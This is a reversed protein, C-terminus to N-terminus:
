KKMMVKENNGNYSEGTGNPWTVRATYQQLVKYMDTLDFPNYKSYYKLGKQRYRYEKDLDDKVESAWKIILKFHLKNDKVLLNYFSSMEKSEILDWYERNYLQWTSFLSNILTSCTTTSKTNCNNKNSPSKITKNINIITKKIVTGKYTYDWMPSYPKIIKNNKEFENAKKLINFFYMIEELLTRKSKINLNFIEENLSHSYANIKSNLCNKYNIDKKKDDCVNFCNKNAAKYFNSNYIFVVNPITTNKYNGNIWNDYNDYNKPISKDKEYKDIINSVYKYINKPSIIGYYFIQKIIKESIIHPKFNFNNLDRTSLPNVTITNPKVVPINYFCDIDRLINPIISDINIENMYINDVWVSTIDSNNEELKGSYMSLTPHYVNSLGFVADATNKNLFKFDINGDTCLGFLDIEEKNKKLTFNNNCNTLTKDSICNKNKVVNHLVIDILDYLIEKIIIDDNYNGGYKYIPITCHSKGDICISPVIQTPGIIQKSPNTMYLNIITYSERDTKKPNQLM